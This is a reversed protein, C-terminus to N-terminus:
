LKPHQHEVATVADRRQLLTGMAVGNLAAQRCGWISEVGNDTGNECVIGM